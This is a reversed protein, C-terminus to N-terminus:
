KFFEATIERRWILKGALKLEKEVQVANGRMKFLEGVEKATFYHYTIGNGRRFTSEEIEKGKGFRFDGVAFDEFLLIGGKKLVRKIELVAPQRENELLHALTHFCVIIDFESNKFPLEKLDAEFFGISKEKAFKEECLRIAIPSFDVAFVKRPKQLLIKELTKGNGVGLELVKKGTFTKEPFLENFRSRWVNKKFRYEDNWTKKSSAEKKM